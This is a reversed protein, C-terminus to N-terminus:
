GAAHDAEAIRRLLDRRLITVTRRGHLSIAGEDELSHLTRSVVERVTGVHAGILANTDALPFTTEEGATRLLYAAIRGRVTHLAQAKLMEILRRQEIALSRVAGAAIQPHAAMLRAFADPAVMLLTTEEECVASAPYNGGDFLALTGVAEGEGAVGLTVERGRADVKFIRVAGTLVVLLGRGAEHEAFVEAGRAYRVTRGAEVVAALVVDGVGKLFLVRRLAALRDVGGM